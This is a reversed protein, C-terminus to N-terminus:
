FLLIALSDSIPWSAANEVDSAFQQRHHVQLHTSPVMILASLLNFYVSIVINYFGQIM